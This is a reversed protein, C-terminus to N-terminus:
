SFLIYMNMKDMVNEPTIDNVIKDLTVIDKSTFFPRLAIYLFSSIRDKMPDKHLEYRFIRTQKKKYNIEMNYSCRKDDEDSVSFQIGKIRNCPGVAYHITVSKKTCAASCNKCYHWHAHKSYEEAKRSKTCIKNCFHCRYQNKGTMRASM